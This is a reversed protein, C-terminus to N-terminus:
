RIKVVMLCVMNFPVCENVPAKETNLVYVLPVPNYPAHHFIGCAKLTCALM